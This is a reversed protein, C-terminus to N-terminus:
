IYLHWLQPHRAPVVDDDRAAGGHHWVWRELGQGHTKRTHMDRVVTRTGFEFPDAPRPTLGEEYKVLAAPVIGCVVSPGSLQVLISAVAGM